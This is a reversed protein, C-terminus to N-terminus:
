QGPLREVLRLDEYAQKLREELEQTEQLLCARQWTRTEDASPTRAASVRRLYAAWGEDGPTM